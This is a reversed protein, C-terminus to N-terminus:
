LDLKRWTFRTRWSDDGEAYAQFAQIVRELPIHNEASEYHDDVSDVQYELVFGNPSDTAIQMYTYENQSLIAFSNGEDHLSSLAESIQSFTPGEITTDNELELLM